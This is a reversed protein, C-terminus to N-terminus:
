HPISLFQSRKIWDIKHPLMQRPLAWVDIIVNLREVSAFNEVKPRLGMWSPLPVFLESFLEAKLFSPFLSNIKSGLLKGKISEKSKLQRSACLGRIRYASIGQIGLDPLYIWVIWRIQYKLEFASVNTICYNKFLSSTDVTPSNGSRSIVLERESLCVTFEVFPSGLLRSAIALLSCDNGIRM